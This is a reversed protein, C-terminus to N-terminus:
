AQPAAWECITLDGSTVPAPKLETVRKQRTEEIVEERRRDGRSDVEFSEGTAKAAHAPINTVIILRSGTPCSSPAVDRERQESRPLVADSLPHM